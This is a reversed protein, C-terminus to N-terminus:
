SIWTGHIGYGAGCRTTAPHEYALEPLNTFGVLDAGATGLQEILDSTGIIGLDRDELFGGRPRHSPTQFIDKAAYPVGSLSGASPLPSLATHIRAFANLVGDLALAQARAIERRSRHEAEDLANWDPIRHM